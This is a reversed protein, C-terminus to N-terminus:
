DGGVYIRQNIRRPWLQEVMVEVEELWWCWRDVRPLLANQKATAVMAVPTSGHEKSVMARGSWWM